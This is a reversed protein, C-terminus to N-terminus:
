PLFFQNDRYLLFFLSPFSSNSVLFLLSFLFFFLFFSFAAFSLLLLTIYLSHLSLTLHFLFVSLFRPFCLSLLSLLYFSSIFTAIRVHVDLFFINVHRLAFFVRFSFYLNCLFLFYIGTPPLFSLSFFSCIFYSVFLLSVYTISFLLSSLFYYIFPISWQPIYCSLLLCSSVRFLTCYM